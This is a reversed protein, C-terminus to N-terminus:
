RRLIAMRGRSQGISFRGGQSRGGGASSEAASAARVARAEDGFAGRWMGEYVALPDFGSLRLFLAGFVLATLVALAPSVVRVLTSRKPRREIVFM